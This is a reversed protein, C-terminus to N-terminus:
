AQTTGPQSREARCRFLREAALDGQKRSLLAMQLLAERHNPELYLAKRYYQAADPEGGAERVLGLLYYAAASTEEERLRAECLSAAERLKGAEALRRAMELPEARAPRRRRLETGGAVSSIGTMLSAPRTGDQEGARRASAQLRSPNDTSRKAASEFSPSAPTTAVPNLGHDQALLQEALGVCLIGAPALLSRVKLLVQRRANEHLYILLNRCFIYDYPGCSAAFGPDLLNGRLFRVRDRVNDNLLFGDSLTYFYRARFSLDSTRFSNPGYLGREALALATASLDIADVQLRERPFGADL